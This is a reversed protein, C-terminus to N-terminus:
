YEEVYHPTVQSEVPWSARSADQYLGIEEFPIPRFGFRDFVAADKGLRFDLGAAGGPRPDKLSFHNDLMENVRRDRTAFEGCDVVLNRWIFNRDANAPMEALDPYRTSHPPATIDVGGSGVIRRTSDSALREKWRAEGWPSFSLAYKCGVFLNNDVINDKGGHIQVAGFRGGACRYFVNGYILVGSIFDDLRIGAQGAVNHGSGIHHWFNYRIRNGRYAPNGYIDIGAQDDSEYVVSHIENFAIEHEYGEVRLAHHPSDHLLNHTIRNGVGDLLVAPAYVRDIRTFDHIHCNEIFHGGATLTARDGGSARIGGAGLTHIDCGFVGHGRGGSVIVGNGGLRSVTCGALLNKEGGEIVIGDARGLEFALGRFTVHEVGRLIAFPESLVPIEVIAGALSKPPFLYLKGSSRDLYWEGPQDLEELVNFFYYPQGQRYGYATSGTTTVQRAAADIKAVQVSRGAWLHVWYGFMWIDEPSQWELPRDEAFEFTGARNAQETGDRGAHVSGTTLFGHNPWRALEMPRGDVYLDVWPNTPDGSLGYGRPLIRGFDVGLAKLDCELVQRRAAEPLRRAIAPDTIPGFKELGLGGSFVPREGPYAQYFVPAEPTGSDAQTLVFTSRLPYAGGRIMVAAGGPPLGGQRKREAVAARARSLTAFPKSETGESADNGDAAVHFVVGPKPPAPLRIRTAGPDRSPLGAALRRMEEAREAAEQRHHPLAIKDQSAELFAAAAQNFDGERQFAHGVYLSALSRVARPADSAAALRQYLGRAGAYDKTALHAHAVQLRVNWTELESLTGGEIVDAYQKIAGSIDGEILLREALAQRVAAREAATLEPLALLRRSVAASAAARVVGRDEAICLRLATERLGDPAQPNEFLGACLAATEIRRGQRWLAHAQAIAAVARCGPPLAVDSAFATYQREAAAWDAQLAASAALAFGRDAAEPLDLGSQAHRLVAEPPLARDFVALEDVDMKLSGVGAGGFGVVLAKAPTFQGTYEASAVPLGNWYIAMVRGDWTAALHHWVGDPLGFAWQASVSNAPQPRGIEFRVEKGPYGTSLRMGEWYGNGLCLIMGNTQGNGLQAGQGHKRLWIEVTLARGPAEFPAGEFRGNDLRVAKRGPARGEVVALPDSGSYRLPSKERGLSEAAPSELSVSEFTYYRVLSPANQMAAQFRVAQDGSAAPQGLCATTGLGALAAALLCSWRLTKGTM